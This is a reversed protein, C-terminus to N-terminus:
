SDLTSFTKSQLLLLIIQELNNNKAFEAASLGNEMVFYPDLGSMLLSQLLEADGTEMAYDPLTKGQIRLKIWKISKCLCIWEFINAKQTSFLHEILSAGRHNDYMSVGQRQLFEFIDTFGKVISTHAAAILLEKSPRYSTILIRLVEVNGTLVASDLFSLGSSTPQIILQRRLAPLVALNGNFIAYFHPFLGRNCTEFPVSVSLRKIEQFGAHLCALHLLNAGREPDTITYETTFCNLYAAVDLYGWRVAFITAKEIHPYFAKMKLLSGYEIFHKIVQVNGIALAYDVPTKGKSDAPTRRAGLELLLKVSREANNLVAIHLPTFHTPSAISNLSWPYKRVAFELAEANDLEAAAHSVTFGRFFPLKLGALFDRKLLDFDDAYTFIKQLLYKTQIEHKSFSPGQKPPDAQWPEISDMDEQYKEKVWERYNEFRFVPEIRDLHDSKSEKWCFKIVRGLREDFTASSAALFNFSNSAFLLILLLSM